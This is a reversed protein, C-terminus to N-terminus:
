PRAGLLIRPMSGGLLQRHAAEGEEESGRHTRRPRPRGPAPGGPGPKRGSPSKMYMLRVSVAPSVCTMSNAKESPSTVAPERRSTRDTSWGKVFWLPPVRVNPCLEDDAAGEDIEIAMAEFFNLVLQVKTQLEEPSSATVLSDTEALGVRVEWRLKTLEPDLWRKMYDFSEQRRAHREQEGRVGIANIAGLLIGLAAAVSAVFIVTPRQSPVLLFWAVLGAAALILGIGAGSPIKVSVSRGGFVSGSGM